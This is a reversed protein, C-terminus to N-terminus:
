LRHDVNKKKMLSHADRGDSIRIQRNSPIWIVLNREGFFSIHHDAAGSCRMILADPATNILRRRRMILPDDDAASAAAPAAAAGAATSKALLIIM